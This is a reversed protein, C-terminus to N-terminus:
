SKRDLDTLEPQQQQQPLKHDNDRDDTFSSYNLYVRLLSAAIHKDKLHTTLTEDSVGRPSIPEPEVRM